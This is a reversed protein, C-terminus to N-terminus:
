SALKSPFYKFIRSRRDFHFISMSVSLYNPQRMPKLGSRGQSTQHGDEREFAETTALWHDLEAQLENGAEGARRRTGRRTRRSTRAMLAGYGPTVFGATKALKPVQVFLEGRAKLHRPRFGNITWCDTSNECRGGHLRGERREGCSAVRGIFRRLAPAAWPAANASIIARWGPLSGLWRSCPAFRSLLHVQVSAAELILKGGNMNNALPVPALPTPITKPAVNKTTAAAHPRQESPARIGLPQDDRHELGRADPRPHCAKLRACRM